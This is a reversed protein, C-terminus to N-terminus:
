ERNSGALGQCFFLFLGATLKEAAYFVRQM